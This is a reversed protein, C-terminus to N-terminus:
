LPWGDAQSRDDTDLLTGQWSDLREDRHVISRRSVGEYHFGSRRAVFASGYNGVASEWRLRTLALGADDFAFEVLAQLAETMLGRGRHRQGLWFGVTASRLPEFRLEILGLLGSADRIAWITLADGAESSRVHPGVFYHADAMTYPQPVPIWRQLEDDQCYGYIADADDPTLPDLRIRESEILAAKM